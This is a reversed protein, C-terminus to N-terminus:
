FFVEKEFLLDDVTEEVVFDIDELCFNLQEIKETYDGSDKSELDQVNKEIESRMAELNIM